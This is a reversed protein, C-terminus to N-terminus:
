GENPYCAEGQDFLAQLEEINDPHIFVSGRENYYDKTGVFGGTIDHPIGWLATQLFEKQALPISQNSNSGDLNDIGEFRESIGYGPAWVNYFGRVEAKGPTENRFYHVMGRPSFIIEGQDELVSGVKIPDVNIGPIQGVQLPAQFEQSSYLRVQSPETSFFWEDSAYHFHPPPGANPTLIAEAMQYLGCTDAPTRLMILVDKGPTEFAVPDKLFRPMTLKLGTDPFDYVIREQIGRINSASPTYINQNDLTAVAKATQLTTVTAVTVVFIIVLTILSNSLFGALFNVQKM